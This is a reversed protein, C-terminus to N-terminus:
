AATHQVTNVAPKQWSFEHVVVESFYQTKGDRDTYPRHVLKGHVMVFSGKTLYKQMREAMNDWAVLNHWQTEKKLSGEKDHFFENTAISVRAVSKGTSLKTLEIASGLNGSLTVANHMTKM